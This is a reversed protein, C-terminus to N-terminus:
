EFASFIIENSGPSSFNHGSMLKSRNFFVPKQPSTAPFRSILPFASKGSMFPLIRTAFAYITFGIGFASFAIILILNMPSLSFRSTFTGVEGVSVTYTFPGILRYM